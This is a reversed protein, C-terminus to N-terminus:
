FFDMTPFGSDESICQWLYVAFGLDGTWLGNDASLPRSINLAGVLRQWHAVWRISGVRSELNPM